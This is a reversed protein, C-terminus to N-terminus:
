IGKVRNIMDDVRTLMNSFELSQNRNIAFLKDATQTQNNVVDVSVTQSFTPDTILIGIDDAVLDIQHMEDSAENQIQSIVSVDERVEGNGRSVAQSISGLKQQLEQQGVSISSDDDAKFKQLTQNYVNVYLDVPSMSATLNALFMSRQYDNMADMSAFDPSDVTSVLANSLLGAVLATSTQLSNSISDASMSRSDISSKLVDGMKDISTQGAALATNAQLLALASANSLAAASVRSTAENASITKLIGSVIAELRNQVRTSNSSIGGGIVRMLSNLYDLRTQLLGSTSNAASGLDAIRRLYQEFISTVNNSALIFSKLFEDRTTNTAFKRKLVESIIRSEMDPTYFYREPKFASATAISQSYNSIIQSLFKKAVSSIDRNVMDQPSQSTLDAILGNMTQNFDQFGTIVSGSLLSSQNAFITDISKASNMLSLIYNQSLSPDGKTFLEGILFKLTRIWVDNASLTGNSDALRNRLDSIQSDVPSPDFSKEGFIKTGLPDLGTQIAVLIPDFSSKLM